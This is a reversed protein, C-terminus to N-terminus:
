KVSCKWLYLCKLSRVRKTMTAPPDCLCIHRAMVTIRTQPRGEHSISDPGETVETPSSFANCCDGERALEFTYVLSYSVPATCARCEFSSQKASDLAARMLMAHGSEIAATVTGDQHVTVAVSVQGSIVAERALLPYEPKFLSVLVANGKPAGTAPDPAAQQAFVSVGVVAALLGIRGIYTV